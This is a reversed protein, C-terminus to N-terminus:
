RKLACMYRFVTSAADKEYFSTLSESMQTLAAKDRLLSLCIRSLEKPKKAAKAAGKAAFFHMNHAEYCSITDILVMPLSKAAAESISIGGPKTLYLDASGLLLEICDVYGYVHVKPYAAFTRFLRRYLRQNTGCVISIESMAGMNKVLLKATKQIPGCGMSGCMMVIHAHESSVGTKSKIADKPSKDYFKRRVPIGSCILKKAPIGQASFEERLSADPIFYYDLESKSVGPSCTYDTAVFATKVSVNKGRLAETLMLAPFVHVCIVADYRASTLLRNLREAGLLLLKYLPSGKHPFRSRTEVYRYCLRFLHPAHCYLRTHWSAIFLSLRKSILGISDVIDCDANQSRFYERIAEACSNHGQGTNCSLILARM